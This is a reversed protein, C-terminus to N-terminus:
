RESVNPLDDFLSCAFQVGILALAQSLQSGLRDGVRQVIPECQMSLTGGVARRHRTSDIVAEAPPRREHAENVIARQRDVVVM